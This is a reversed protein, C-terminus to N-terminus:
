KKIPQNQTSKIHVMKWNLLYSGFNALFLLDWTIIFKLSYIYKKIKSLIQRNKFLITSFHIFTNWLFSLESQKGRPQQPADPLSDCIHFQGKERKYLKKVEEVRVEHDRRKALQFNNALRSQRVLSVLVYISWLENRSLRLLPDNKQRCVVEGKKILFFLSLSLSLYFSRDLHHFIYVLLRPIQCCCSPSIAKFFHLLQRWLNVSLSVIWYHFEEKISISKPLHRSPAHEISHRKESGNRLKVVTSM